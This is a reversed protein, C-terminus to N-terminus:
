TMPPHLTDLYYTCPSVRVGQLQYAVLRLVFDKLKINVVSAIVQDPPQEISQPFSGPYSSAAQQYQHSSGTAAQQYQLTSSAAAQQYQLM